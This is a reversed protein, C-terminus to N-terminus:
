IPLADHLSLTYIETTATNNFFFIIVFRRQARLNQLFQADLSYRPPLFIPSGEINPQPRTRKGLLQLAQHERFLARYSWRIVQGCQSRRGVSRHRRGIRGELYLLAFAYDFTMLRSTSRFATEAQGDLKKKKLCFVAYSIWEHSSNLRTSKRDQPCPFRNLPAGLMICRGISSSCPASEKGSRISKRASATRSARRPSSRSAPKSQCRSATQAFYASSTSRWPM